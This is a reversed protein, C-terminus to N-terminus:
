YADEFYRGQAKLITATLGAPGLLSDIADRVGRAMDLGGCVFIQAGEAILRKLLDANAIVRDQVYGGDAVRSFATHLETLRGEKMAENLEDRYLFDSRPDRAGFFMYVPRRHRNQRVFGALPAIGAGAGILILPKRGSNPHFDANPRIFADISDGLELAHLYESCLGGNQKRVCIELVGDSSASALSYYRPVISGPPLIGVLDGAQFQPLRSKGMLREIAGGSGKAATFRLVATPAQVEHGFDARDALVLRRTKPRVPAHSLELPLDLVEGLARGWVTFDQGNQRDITGLPLLAETGTEALATEVTDAFACFQRFSRDGFGLVAYSEAPVTKLRALRGLFRSASSPANGDGYTATLVILRRAKPYARLTNMAAIHVRQGAATLANHLTAAFAMTSNGETGVLIVTEAARWSVNGALRVQHRRRYAWIVVGSAAMAPVASAAIGLLLGFWWLGEGTHLMYITEYVQQWFTNAKFSLMTGTAQDITGKGASTTITFVDKANAPFVLERLSSLPTQALAQLTDIAAPTGGSAKPPLSFSLSSGDPVFGFDVGSMYVGTLATVVLGVIAVRALNAHLRQAGTGKARAFLQRWGGMRAALLMMGSIALIAIGASAIGATARGADGLFLSRHLETAFGFFGSPAYPGLVAGTAPDIQDVVHASGSTVYAVIVGSASRTIRAVTPLNAAVNGALEAVNALAGASHASAVELAPQVSLIAGTIAMFSVLLAAVLGAFSHLRRM